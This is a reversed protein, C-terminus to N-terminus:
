TTQAFSISNPTPTAPPPPASPTIVATIQTATGPAVPTFTSTAYDFQLPTTTSESWGNPYTVSVILGTPDLTPSVAPDNSTVTFTTGAPYAAGAPSLTGTFVQTQGAETPNMTTEKFTITSPTPTSSPPPSLERAIKELERLILHLTERDERTDQDLRKITKAITHATTDLLELLYRNDIPVFFVEV